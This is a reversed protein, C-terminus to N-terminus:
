VKRSWSAESMAVPDNTKEVFNQRAGSMWGGPYAQPIVAVYPMPSKDSVRTYGGVLGYTTAAPRFTAVGVAHALGVDFYSKLSLYMKDWEARVKNGSKLYPGELDEIILTPAARVSDADTVAVIPDVMLRLSGSSNLPLDSGMFPFPQWAKTDNSRLQDNLGLFASLLNVVEAVWLGASVGPGRKTEGEFSVSEEKLGKFSTDTAWGWFSYGIWINHRSKANVDYNGKKHYPLDIPILCCSIIWRAMVIPSPLDSGSLNSIMFSPRLFASEGAAIRVNELFKYEKLPTTMEHQEVLVVESMVDLNHALIDDLQSKTKSVVRSISPGEGTADERVHHESALLARLQVKDLKLNNKSGNMLTTNIAASLKNDAIWKNVDAVTSASTEFATDVASLRNKSKLNPLFVDM